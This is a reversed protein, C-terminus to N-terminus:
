KCGFEDMRKKYDDLNEKSVSKSINKLADLFDTHKIPIDSLEDNMKAIEMINKGELLAKRMPMMAAERCVNAIDAGSYGKTRAVLDQMKVDDSM